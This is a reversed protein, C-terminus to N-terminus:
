WVEGEERNKPRNREGLVAKLRASRHPTLVLEVRPNAPDVLRASGTHGFVQRDNSIVGSHRRCKPPCTRRHAELVDQPGEYTAVLDPWGRRDPLYTLVQLELDVYAPIPERFVAGWQAALAAAAMKEWAKYASTYGISAHGSIVIPQVNNKKTVLRGPISLRIEFASLDPIHWGLEHVIAGAPRTMERGLAEAM